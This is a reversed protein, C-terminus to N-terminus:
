LFLGPLNKGDYKKDTGSGASTKREYFLVKFYLTFCLFYFERM